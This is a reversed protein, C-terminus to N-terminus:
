FPFTSFVFRGPNFRSHHLIFTFEFFLERIFLFYKTILFDTPHPLASGPPGPCTLPGDCSVCVAGVISMMVWDSVNFSVTVFEETYVSYQEVRFCSGRRSSFSVLWNLQPQIRSVILPHCFDQPLERLLLTSSSCNSKHARQGKLHARLGLFSARWM